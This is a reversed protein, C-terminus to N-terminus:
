EKDDDGPERQRVPQQPPDQRLARLLRKVPKRRPLNIVADIDADIDPSGVIRIGLDKKPGVQVMEACLQVRKGVWGRTVTGFMTALCEANTRNLVWGRGHVQEFYVVLRDKVKKPGDDDIEGPKGIVELTAKHIKSITFVPRREGFEVAALFDGKAVARWDGDFPQGQEM